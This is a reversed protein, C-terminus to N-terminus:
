GKTLPFWTKEEGTLPVFANGGESYDFTNQDRGTLPVFKIKTRGPEGPPHPALFYPESRERGLNTRARTM